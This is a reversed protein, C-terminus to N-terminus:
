LLREATDFFPQALEGAGLSLLYLGSSVRELYGWEWIATEDRGTETALLHCYDRARSMSRDALIEPCWDRLVVGLDYAPDAVFGEPDVFVFGSEAGARRTSIQLANGPHPDGHVVVVRRADFAAARRRAFELAQAVVRESCPEELAEWLEGVLDALQTAKRDERLIPAAVPMPVTWAHGLTECLTGIIHEPAMNLTTMAPGLAEQLMAHRMVDHALVRVYGRGGADVLTRLQAAFEPEPIALKLVVDLAEATRARAVFAATGGALADGVTISWQRELDGVLDPLDVLWREGVAGLRKAKAQVMASVLIEREAMHDIM